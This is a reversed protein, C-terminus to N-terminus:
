GGHDPEGHPDQPARCCYELYMGGGLMVLASVLGIVATVTDAAAATVTGADPLVYAGFGLWLGAFAAGALATAKGVALARAATLPPLPARGSGPRSSRSPQSSRPPQATERIRSRLGHGAIAEGIGILAAPLGAFRPLAPIDGYNIWTLGFALVAAVIGVM